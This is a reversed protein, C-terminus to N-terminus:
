KSCEAAHSNQEEEEAEEAEADVVADAVAVAVATGAIVAIASHEGYTLKWYHKVCFAYTKFVGM